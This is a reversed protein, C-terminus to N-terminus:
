GEIKDGTSFMYLGFGKRKENEYNGIFYDGNKYKLSCQGYISDKVWNGKFVDGNFFIILGM